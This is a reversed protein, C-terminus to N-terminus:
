GYGVVGGLTPILTPTLWWRAMRDLAGLVIHIGAVCWPM